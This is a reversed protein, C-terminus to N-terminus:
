IANHKQKTNNISGYRDPLDDTRNLLVGAILITLPSISMIRLSLRLDGTLEQIYGTLYPGVTAGVSAVTWVLAVAVAIERPRIDDLHYPVMYLIPFFGWALGNIVGLTLLLRYDDTYTMGAFTVAIVAGSIVLVPARLEKGKIYYGAVIGSVGGPFVYSAAVFSSKNLSIGYVDLFMTPLFSNFATFATFAGCFGLAAIWVERYSLAKRLISRSMEYGGDQNVSLKEGKLAGAPIERDRALIVWAVVLVVFFLAFMNMVPRWDGGFISLLEPTVLIGSSVIFGFVLNEVGGALNVERQTLWQRIILPGASERAIMTVGFLLRGLLLLFFTPAWGQFAICSASLLMTAAVIVKPSYRTIWWTIVLTLLLYAWYPSSGFIGQSVPSLSFDDAIAPLLIGIAMAIFFGCTNCIVFLGFITWRYFDKDIFREAM